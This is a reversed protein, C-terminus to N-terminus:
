ASTIMMLFLDGHSGHGFIHRFVWSFWFHQKKARLFFFFPPQPNSAHCCCLPSSKFKWLWYTSFYFLIYKLCRQSRLHLPFNFKVYIKITIKITFWVKWTIAPFKQRNFYLAFLHSSPTLLIFYNLPIRVLAKHVKCSSLIGLNWMSFIYITLSCRARPRRDQTSCRHLSCTIHGNFVTILSVEWSRTFM